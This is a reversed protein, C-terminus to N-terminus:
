ALAVGQGKAFAEIERRLFRDLEHRNPYIPCPGFERAYWRQWDALPYAPDSFRKAREAESWKEWEASYHEFKDRHEDKWARYRAMAEERRIDEPSKWQEPPMGTKDEHVNELRWEAMRRVRDVTNYFPRLDTSSILDECDEWSLGLARYEIMRTAIKRLYAETAWRPKDYNWYWKPLVDNRKSTIEKKLM